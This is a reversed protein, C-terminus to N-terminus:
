GGVIEKLKGVLGDWLDELEDDETSPSYDTINLYVSGTLENQEIKFEIFTLDDVENSAEHFFEFRTVKNLKKVTQKAHHDADDWKFNFVHSENDYDAKDAFWESLGTATSIYPFLLRPSARIEYEKVFKKKTVAM